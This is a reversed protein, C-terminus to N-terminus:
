PGGELQRKLLYILERVSVGVWDGTIMAISSSPTPNVLNAGSKRRHLTVLYNLGNVKTLVTSQAHSRPLFQVVSTNKVEIWLGITSRESAPPASRFVTVLYFCNDLLVEM